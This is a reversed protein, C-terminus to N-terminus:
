NNTNNAIITGTTLNSGADLWQEFNAYTTKYFSNNYVQSYAINRYCRIFNVNLTFLSNLQTVNISNGNFFCQSYDLSTGIGISIIDQTFNKKCSYNLIFNNFNISLNKSVGNAQYVGVNYMDNNNIKLRGFTGGLVIYSNLPLYVTGCM